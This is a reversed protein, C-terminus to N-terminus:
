TLYEDTCGVTAEQVVIKIFQGTIVNEPHTSGRM